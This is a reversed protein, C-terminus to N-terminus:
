SPTVHIAEVAGFYHPKSRHHWNVIQDARDYHHKRMYKRTGSSLLPKALGRTGVRNGKHVTSHIM